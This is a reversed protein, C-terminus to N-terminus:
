FDEKIEEYMNQIIEKNLNHIITNNNMDMECKYWKDEILDNINLIDGSLTYEEKDEIINNIIDKIIEGTIFDECCNSVWYNDMEVGLSNAIGFMCSVAKQLDDNDLAIKMGKLKIKADGRYPTWFNTEKVSEM